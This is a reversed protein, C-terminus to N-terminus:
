YAKAISHKKRRMFFRGVAAAAAVAIGGKVVPWLLARKNLFSVGGALVPVLSRLSMGKIGKSGVIRGVGAYALHAAHLLMSKTISEARLAESVDQRASVIEARYFAGQNLLARKRSDMASDSLKLASSLAENM